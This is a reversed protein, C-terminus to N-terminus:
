AQKSVSERTINIQGMKGKKGAQKCDFKRQRNINQQRKTEKKRKGERGTM